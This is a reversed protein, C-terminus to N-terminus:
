QNKRTVCARKLKSYRYTTILQFFFNLNFRFKHFIFQRDGLERFLDPHALSLHKFLNSTNRHCCSKPRYCDKTMQKTNLTIDYKVDVTRKTYQNQTRQYLKMQKIWRTQVTTVNVPQAAIQSDSGGVPANKLQLMHFVSNLSIIIDYRNFYLIYVPVKWYQYVM